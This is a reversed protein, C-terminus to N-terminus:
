LDKPVEAGSDVNRAPQTAPQTLPFGEQKAMARIQAMEKNIRHRIYARLEPPVQSERIMLHMGNELQIMGVVPDGPGDVGAAAMIGAPKTIVVGRDTISYDIGTIGKLSELAQAITVNEWFVKVTRFEVPVRQLAGPELIFDVGARGRLDDLVQTLEAEAYRVTFTKQLQDRVQVEKPVVVIMRGWPYWTARTQKAIQELAEYLSVNRPLNLPLARVEQPLRAEIAYPTKELQLDVATLVAQVDAAAQLAPMPKGALLDLAQLEQVTSRRGLRRLPAMPQLIVAEDGLTYTLGLKQTLADLAQRLTLNEIKATVNTQQGWPLLEWVAPDAKMRVGTKTEIAQMAGPLMADLDLKVQKDLAENILASTESASAPAAFLAFLAIAALAPAHSRLNPTMSSCPM